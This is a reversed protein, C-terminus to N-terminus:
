PRGLGALQPQRGVAEKITQKVRDFCRQCLDATAIATIADRAPSGALRAKQETAVNVAEIRVPSVSGAKGCSDCVIM